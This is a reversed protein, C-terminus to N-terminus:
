QQAHLTLVLFQTALFPLATVRLVLLEPVTSQSVFLTRDVVNTEFLKREM